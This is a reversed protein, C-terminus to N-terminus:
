SICTMEFQGKKYWTEPCRYSNIKKSTVIANNLKEKASKKGQETKEEGIDMGLVIKYCTTAGFDLSCDNGEVCGEPMIFLFYDFNIIETDQINQLLKPNTNCTNIFPKFSMYPLGQKDPIDNKILKNLIYDGMIKYQNSKFTTRNSSNLETLLTNIKNIDFDKYSTDFLLCDNDYLKKLFANNPIVQGYLLTTTFTSVEDALKHDLYISVFPVYSVASFTSFFLVM